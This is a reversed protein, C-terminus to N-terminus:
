GRRREDLSRAGSARGQIRIKHAPSPKRLRVGPRFDDDLTFEVGSRRLAETIRELTESRVRVRDALRAEMNRITNISVGASEALEQQGIGVLSRAARLQNGSVIM